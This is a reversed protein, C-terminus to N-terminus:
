FGIPKCYIFNTGRAIYFPLCVFQRIHQPCMDYHSMIFTAVDCHIPSMLASTPAFSTLFLNVHCAGPKDM